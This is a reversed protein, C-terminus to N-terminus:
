VFLPEFEEDPAAEAAGTEIQIHPAENEFFRVAREAIHEWGPEGPLWHAHGPLEELRAKSGYHEATRRAMSLPTLRDDMGTLMLLPCAIKAPDILAAHRKDLYWFALEFFSRGSEPILSAYLNRADRENLGNLMARRMAKYSPLFTWRWFPTMMIERLFIMVVSPPLTIVPACHATALLTAGRILGRAALMQALTGGMSHGIVFPKEDLGAIEAELDDAYDLLSTTALAPDPETWPEIDHHRLTPTLVRYGRAEFFHRFNEWVQPRSWMGHILVVTRGAGAMGKAKSLGGGQMMKINVM